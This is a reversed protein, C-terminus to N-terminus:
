HAKGCEVEVLDQADKIKGADVAVGDSPNQLDALSRQAGACKSDQKGSIVSPVSRSYVLAAAIYLVLVIVTTRLIQKHRTPPADPKDQGTDIPPTPSQM